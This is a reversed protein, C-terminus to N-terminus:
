STKQPRTYLKWIKKRHHIRLKGRHDSFGWPMGKHSGLLFVSRLLPCDKNHHLVLRLWNLEWGQGPVLMNQSFALFFFFFFQPGLKRLSSAVYTLWPVSLQKSSPILPLQLATSITLACIDSVRFQARLYQCPQVNESQQPFISNWSLGFHEPRIQPFWGRSRRADM